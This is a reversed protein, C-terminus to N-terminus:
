LYSAMIRLGYGFTKKEYLYNMNKWNLNEHIHIGLFTISKSINYDVQNLKSAKNKQIGSNTPSFIMFKTKSGNLLLNNNKFWKDTKDLALKYSKKLLTYFNETLLMLNTGDSYNFITVNHKGM